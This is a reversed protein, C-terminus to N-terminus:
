PAEVQFFTLANGDPDAVTFTTDGWPQREPASCAVGAGQLRAHCADISAVQFALRAGPSSPGFASRLLELHVRDAVRLLMGDGDPFERDVTLGVADLYFARSREYDAPVLIVRCATPGDSGARDAGASM